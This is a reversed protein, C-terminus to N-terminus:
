TMWDQDAARFYNFHAQLLEAQVQLGPNIEFQAIRCGIRAVAFVPLKVMGQHHAFAHRFIQGLDFHPAFGCQDARQHYSATFGCKLPRSIM